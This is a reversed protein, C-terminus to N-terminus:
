GANVSAVIKDIDNLCLGFWYTFQLPNLKLEREADEPKIWKWDSAEAPDPIPNGSYRGVLVHDFENEILGNKFNFFYTFSYARQLECAIGMEEKLRRQAAALIEEHPRPHGCCTNTWLGPSHYKDQARKQLLIENAENFIFVSFARHLLGQRHAEMKECSGTVNDNSDVLVVQEM